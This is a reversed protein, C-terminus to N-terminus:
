RSRAFFTCDLKSRKGVQYASLYKLLKGNVAERGRQRKESMMRRRHTTFVIRTPQKKTRSEMITFGWKYRAETDRVADRTAEEHLRAYLM